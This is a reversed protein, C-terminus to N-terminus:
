WWCWWWRDSLKCRKMKIGFTLLHREMWPPAASARRQTRLPSPGQSLCVLPELHWALWRSRPVRSSVEAPFRPLFSSSPRTLACVPQEWPGRPSPEARHTCVWTGRVAEQKQFGLLHLGQEKWFTRPFCLGSARAGPQEEEGQTVQEDCGRNKGDQGWLTQSKQPEQPDLWSARLEESGLGM